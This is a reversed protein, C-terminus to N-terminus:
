VTLRRERATIKWCDRVKGECIVLAESYLAVTPCIHWPLGFLCQGVAMRSALPSEVVLHEESHAIARAEPLNLFQARPHPMESAVAKHGLDLCLRDHSPKSVVRTLVLAAPLFPMDPLNTAYGADWFVYTGPSCEVDQRQAHFPFTPTGGAVVRPVPLGLGTLEQRLAAVPAFAAECAAARTIPEAQHVHGDYAHLGGPKLGPLSALARYLAISWVGPPVGTRHQGCDIDLLVEISIPPRLSALPGSAAASVAASLARLAEVDDAIVSFKTQPFKLILKLLRDVNPGVPQYAILLDPVGCGAAMEAEALTACKYKTIGLGLQRRVLEPMKHTKIHPRLRDVGGAIAILRRINEEIRERYLLLAPSFIQEVGAVEFWNATENAHAM